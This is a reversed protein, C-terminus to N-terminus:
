AAFRPAQALGAPTLHVPPGDLLKGCRHVLGASHLEDVIDLTRELPLGLQYGVSAANLRVTPKNQALQTLRYLFADRQLREVIEPGSM